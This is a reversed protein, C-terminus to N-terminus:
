SVIRVLVVAAAIANASYLALPVPRYATGGAFVAPKKRRGAFAGIRLLKPSGDLPGFDAWVSSMNMTHLRTEEEREGLSSFVAM